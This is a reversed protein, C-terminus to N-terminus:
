FDLNDYPKEVNSEDPFGDFFTLTGLRTEVKEPSAIGPPIPTAMEEEKTQSPKLPSFVQVLARIPKSGRKEM